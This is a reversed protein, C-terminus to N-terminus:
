ESQSINKRIMLLAGDCADGKPSVLRKKYAPKLYDIIFPVVGGVLSYPLNKDLAKGQKDFALFINEVHKASRKLLQIALKDNKDAFKFIDRALEAYQSANAYCAWQTIDEVKTGLKKRLHILLSSNELLGDCQYLLSRVAELGLWAAGGEDGHPFGWGGVQSKGKKTIKLGVVGTGVIIVCGFHGSHAGLCAVYADSQIICNAFSHKLKALFGERASQVEYGALGMGVHLRINKKNKLDAKQLVQDLADQISRCAVDVSLRINAPGSFAEALVKGDSAELRLHTKSGGGDVGIFFDNRM